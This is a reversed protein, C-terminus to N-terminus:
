GHVSTVLNDLTQSFLFPLPVTALLNSNFLFQCEIMSTGNRLVFTNDDTTTGDSSFLATSDPM